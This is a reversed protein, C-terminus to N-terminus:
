ETLTLEGPEDPVQVSQELCLVVLELVDEPAGAVRDPLTLAHVEPIHCGETSLGSRQEVDAAAPALPQLEEAIMVDGGVADVRILGEHLCVDLAAEVCLDAVRKGM